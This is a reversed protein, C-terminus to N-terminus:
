TGKELQAEFEEWLVPKTGMKGVVVGACLNAYAVAEKLPLGATYFAALAAIATDGAGSVDYVEKAQAPFHWSGEEPHYLFMGEPGLTVVMFDLGYRSVLRPCAQGLDEPPLDEKLAIETFEKRNPTICTAGQYKRWNLGKPDVFLPKARRRAEEVLWLCFGESLFLGKAYDSLIVAQAWDM